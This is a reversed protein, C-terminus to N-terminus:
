PLRITCDVLTATRVAISGMAIANDIEIGKFIVIKTCIRLVLLPHLVACFVNVRALCVKVHQSVRQQMSHTNFKVQVKASRQFHIQLQRM